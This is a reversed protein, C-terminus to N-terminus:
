AARAPLFRRVLQADPLRQFPRAPPCRHDPRKQLRARRYLSSPPQYFPGTPTLTPHSLLAFEAPTVTVPYIVTPAYALIQTAASVPTMDDTPSLWYDGAVLVATPITRGDRRLDEIIAPDVPRLVMPVWFGYDAKLDSNMDARAIRLPIVLALEGSLYLIAFIVM